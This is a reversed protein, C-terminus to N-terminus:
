APTQQQPVAVQQWVSIKGNVITFRAAALGGPDDCQTSGRNGLRFVATARNGRFSISLVRGSCPLGSHWEAIEARTKLRYVYPGQILTAPLTFLRAVGANDGANLRKSWARVVAEMKRQVPTRTPSASASAAPVAPTSTAALAASAVMAVALFVQARM